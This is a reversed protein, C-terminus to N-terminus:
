EYLSKYELELKEIKAVARKYLDDNEIPFLSNWEKKALELKNKFTSIKRKSAIQKNRRLNEATQGTAEESGWVSEIECKPYKIQLLAARYKFYWDYKMRIPFPMNHWELYDIVDGSHKPHVRIVFYFALENTNCSDLAM